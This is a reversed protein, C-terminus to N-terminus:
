ALSLSSHLVLALPLLFDSRTRANTRQGTNTAARVKYLKELGSYQSTFGCKSAVNVVLVVKGRYQELAQQHKKADKVLRLCFSSPTPSCLPCCSFCTKVDFDSHSVLASLDFFGPEGGAAGAAPAPAAAAASADAPAASMALIPSATFLFRRAAPSSALVAVLVAVAACLLLALTLPQRSGGSSSKIAM